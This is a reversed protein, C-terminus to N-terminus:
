EGPGSKPPTTGRIIVAPNQRMLASVQELNAAILDLRRLLMVMPPLTQQSIKDIGTKGAQMTKSVQKGATSMSETMTNFSRIGMKLEIVAKPLEHLTKGINSDNKAIVDAIKQLSALSKKLNQTNEENFVRKFGLNINHIDIQLQYFFSPKAPIVPYPEGPIKQLPVFSPSTASLGLYTVGTIGQTILTAQTKMTIPTGEEIKLQIRVQQPDLQSLQVKDVMGVKVGNFKVPSENSLGSVPETM